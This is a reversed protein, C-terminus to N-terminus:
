LGKAKGNGSLKESVALDKVYFLDEHGPERGATMKKDSSKFVKDRQSWTFKVGEMYNKLLDKIDEDTIKTDNRHFFELVSVGNYFSVDITFNDKMYAYRVTDTLRARDMKKGEGYRAKIQDLTEGLRAYAAGSFLTLLSIIFLLHKM